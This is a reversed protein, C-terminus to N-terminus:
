GGNAADWADQLEKQKALIDSKSIETTTATKEKKETEDWYSITWDIRDIDNDWVNVKANPNIAMIAHIIRIAKYDAM